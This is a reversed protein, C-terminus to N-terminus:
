LEDFSWESLLNNIRNLSMHQSSGAPLHGAKFHVSNGSVTIFTM